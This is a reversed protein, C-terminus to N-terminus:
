TLTRTISKIMNSGEKKLLAKNNTALFQDREGLNFNFDGRSKNYVDGKESGAATV